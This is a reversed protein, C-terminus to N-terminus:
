YRKTINKHKEKNYPIAKQDPKELFLVEIHVNM